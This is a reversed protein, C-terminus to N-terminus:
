QFHKESKSLCSNRDFLMKASIFSAYYLHFLDTLTTELVECEFASEDSNSRLKTENMDM